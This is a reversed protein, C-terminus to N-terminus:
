EDVQANDDDGLIDKRTKYELDVIDEEKRYCIEKYKCFECGILEGKVRKPNISFDGEEIAGVVENIREDVIKDIKDTISLKDNKLNKHVCKKCVSCIYDYRCESIIMQRDTNKSPSVSNKYFNIKSLEDETLHM